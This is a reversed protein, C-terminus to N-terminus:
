PRTITEPKRRDPPESIDINLLDRDATESIDIKRLEGTGTASRV